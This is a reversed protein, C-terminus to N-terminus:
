TECTPTFVAFCPLAARSAFRHLPHLRFWSPGLFSAFRATTFFPGEERALLLGDGGEFRLGPGESSACWPRFRPEPPPPPPDPCALATRRWLTRSM